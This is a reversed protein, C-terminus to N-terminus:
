YNVPFSIHKYTELKKIEKIWLLFQIKKYGQLKIKATKLFIIVNEIERKSKGNLCYMHERRLLVKSNFSLRLRIAEMLHYDFKQDIYFYPRVRKGGDEISISFCGEAEIFGVLWNDFYSLALIEEVPKLSYAIDKVYEPRILLIQGNKRQILTDRWVEYQFFKRSLCPFNDFIPVIVSLLHDMNAIVYEAKELGIEVRGVGLQKKIKFLLKIDRLHLGISFRHNLWPKYDIISFCGDGDTFGVLWELYEANARQFACCSTHVEASQGKILHIKVKSILM